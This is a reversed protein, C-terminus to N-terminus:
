SDGSVGHGNREVINERTRWDERHADTPQHRHVKDDIEQFFHVTEQAM